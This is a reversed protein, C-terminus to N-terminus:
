DNLKILLKIYQYFLFNKIDEKKLYNSYKILNKKYYKNVFFFNSKKDLDVYPMM